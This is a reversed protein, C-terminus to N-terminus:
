SSEHTSWVTHSYQVISGEWTCRLSELVKHIAWTSDWQVGIKKELIQRICFIQDTTSINRRFGCQFDRIMEEEYPILRWFLINSVIKYSTSLLKTARTAFLCLFVGMESILSNKRKGFLILPNLSRLIYHKV